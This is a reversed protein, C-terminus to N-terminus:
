GSQAASLRPAPVSRDAIADLAAIMREGSRGDLRHFVREVFGAPAADGSGGALVREVEARLEDATAVEVVTGPQDATPSFDFDALAVRIVPCGIALAEADATGGFGGIMVDAAAQLENVDDDVIVFQARADAPPRLEDRATRHNPHPKVVVVTRDRDALARVCMRLLEASMDPWFNTAVLVIAVDRDGSWRRRLADFDNRRRKRWDGLPDFRRGGTVFLRDDPVGDERLIRRADEGYLLFADPMPLAPTEAPAFRYMLQNENVPSHQFGIVRTGAAAQRAGWAVARGHPYTEVITVLDSPRVHAVMRATRHALLDYYPLDRVMTIRLDHRAIPFVDIGDWQFSARFTRDFRELRWYAFAERLDAYIRSVAGVTAWRELFLCPGADCGALEATRAISRRLGEMSSATLQCAYAPLWSTGSRIVDPLDVFYRDRLRGNWPRWQAPFFTHFVITRQLATTDVEAALAHRRALVTAAVDLAWRKARGMLLAVFGPGGAVPPKPTVTVAVGTRRCAQSLVAIQDADRGILLVRDYRRRSLVLALAELECLRSFTPRTGANKHLLETFWWAARGGARFADPFTRGFAVPRASWDAVFAVLKRRTVPVVERMLEHTRFVDRVRTSLAAAFDSAIGRAGGLPLVDVPTADAPVSALADAVSMADVLVVLTM